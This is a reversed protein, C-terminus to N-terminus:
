PQATDAHAASVGRFGRMKGYIIATAAVQIAALVALHIAPEPQPMYNGTSIIILFAHLIYALASLPLAILAALCAAVALEKV